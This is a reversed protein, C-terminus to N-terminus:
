ARRCAGVNYRDADNAPSRRSSSPRVKWLDVASITGTQSATVILAGSCGSGLVEEVVLHERAHLAARIQDVGRAALNAIAVGDHSRQLATLQSALASSTENGCGAGFSWRHRVM